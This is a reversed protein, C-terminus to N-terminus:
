SVAEDLQNTPQGPIGTVVSVCLVGPSGNLPTNRKRDESLQLLVHVKWRLFDNTLCNYNLNMRCDDEKQILKTKWCLRPRGLFTKGTSIYDMWQRVASSGIVYIDTVVIQRYKDSIIAETVSHRISPGKGSYRRLDWSPISASIHQKCNKCPMEILMSTSTNFNCTDHKRCGAEEATVGHANKTHKIQQYLSNEECLASVIRVEACHTQVIQRQPADSGDAKIGV